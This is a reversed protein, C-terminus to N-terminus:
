LLLQTKFLGSWAVESWGALVVELQDVQTLLESALFCLSLTGKAKDESYESAVKNFSQGEQM